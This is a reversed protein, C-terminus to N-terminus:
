GIEPRHGSGSIRIYKTDDSPQESRVNGGVAATILRALTMM